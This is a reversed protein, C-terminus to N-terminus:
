SMFLNVLDIRGRMSLCELKAEKALYLTRETRDLVGIIDLEASM